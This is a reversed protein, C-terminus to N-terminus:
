GRGLYGLFRQEAPAASPVPIEHGYHRPDRRQGIVERAVELGISWVGDSCQFTGGRFSGIDWGHALVDVLNIGAAMEAGFTGFPLHCERTLDASEWSRRTTTVM